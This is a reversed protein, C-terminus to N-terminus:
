GLYRYFKRVLKELNSNEQETAKTGINKLRHFLVDTHGDLIMLLMFQYSDLICSLITMMTTGVGQVLYFFWYLSKIENIGNPYLTTSSWFIENKKGFFSQIWLFGIAMCYCTLFMRFLTRARRHVSNMINKEIRTMPSIEDDLEKMMKFMEIREKSNMYFIIGRLFASISSTTVILNDVVQKTSSIFLVSAFLTSLFLTTFFYFLISVHFYHVISRKIPALLGLGELVKAHTKFLDISYM